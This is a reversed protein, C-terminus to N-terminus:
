HPGNPRFSGGLLTRAGLTKFSGGLHTRRRRRLGAGVRRRRRHIGLGVKNGLIDIARSGAFNAVKGAIGPLFTSALQLGGKLVPRVVARLGSKIVDWINGGRTTHHRIQHPGMHLRMGKGATVHRRLKNHQMTTLYVVHGRGVKHPHIHITGGTLVKRIQPNSLALRIANFM